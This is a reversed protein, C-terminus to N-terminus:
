IAGSTRLHHLQIDSATADAGPSPPVGEAVAGAREREMKTRAAAQERQLKKEASAARKQVLVADALIDKEANTFMAVLQTLKKLVEDCTEPKPDETFEKNVNSMAEKVVRMATGFENMKTRFEGAMRMVVEEKKDSGDDADDESAAAKEARADVCKSAEREVFVADKEMTNVDAILQTMPYMWAEACIALKMALEAPTDGQRGHTAHAAAQVVGHAMTAPRGNLKVTQSKSDGM